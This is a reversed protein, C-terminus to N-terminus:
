SNGGSPSIHVRYFEKWYEKSDFEFAFSGGYTDELQTPDIFDHISVYDGWGTPKKEKTVRRGDDDEITLQSEQEEISKETSHHTGPHTKCFNVKSRTVPDMFTGIIKFFM